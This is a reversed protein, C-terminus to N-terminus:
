PIRSVDVRGKKVEGQAKLEVDGKLSNGELVLSCTYVGGDPDTVQITVKNGAIKGSQIAWQTDADPGATGTIATGAQKLIM